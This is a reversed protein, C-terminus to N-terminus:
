LLHLTELAKGIETLSELQVSSLSLILSFIRWHHPLELYFFFNEKKFFTLDFNSNRFTEDSLMGIMPTHWQNFDVQVLYITVFYEM